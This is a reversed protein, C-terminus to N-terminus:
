ETFEGVLQVERQLEIGFRERVRAITLDILAKMDAATANGANTFFNTHKPSIEADGIRYGRLGVEDILKWVAHGTPNKFTSGANRGPPQASTRKHDLEAVRAMIAVPDGPALEITAAVVIADTLQGRTFVSSRYALHLDAVALDRTEGDAGAVRAQVLVDALCGGYAGANYVVAGGIAGPIGVAWELGTYGERCLRRAVWAFPAGSEVTFQSRGDAGQVPGSLGRADNEIVLGRIGGDGVLINSGSGLVFVPLDHRRAIRWADVLQAGSSAKLYLDAPGGIGFTTHRALPENVRVPAVLELELRAADLNGNVHHM